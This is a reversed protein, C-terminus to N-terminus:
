KISFLNSISFRLVMYKIDAKTPATDDPLQKEIKDALVHQPLAEKIQEHAM